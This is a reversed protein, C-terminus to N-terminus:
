INRKVSKVTWWFSMWMKQGFLSVHDVATATGTFTSRILTFRHRALAQWWLLLPVVVFVFSIAPVTRWYLCEDLAKDIQAPCKASQGAQGATASAESDHRAVQFFTLFARTLSATIGSVIMCAVLIFMTSTSVLFRDLKAVREYDDVQQRASFKDRIWAPLNFKDRIWSPLRMLGKGMPKPIFAPAHDLAQPHLAAAAITLLIGSASAITISHSIFLVAVRWPDSDCPPITKLGDFAANAFLGAVVGLGAQVLM